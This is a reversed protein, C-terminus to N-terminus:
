HAKNVYNICELFSEINAKNKGILNTATGHDPSVRLYKLGLTINCAKYKFLAKFPSLVQDHFMGVIVDYKKFEDLFITDAPIPGHVNISQKKLKNIAPIIIKKEESDNRLEANHPNLGLIAIKPKKKHRKKFWKDITKVKTVILKSNIIKHIQKIDVHTTIPSISIKDNKLLMTESNDKIKCKAALYETVGIRKRNLLNKNIACNIIGKVDNNLGLNHGLNLSKIVFQSRQIKSIKFPNNFNLFVDIIKLNASNSKDNIDKVKELRINYNLKHLQQKILNYNSILYIKKKISNNIKKWAKYIVESNISNPDGSIIIIKNKM